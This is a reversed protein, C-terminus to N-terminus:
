EKGNDGAASRGNNRRPKFSAGCIKAMVEDIKHPM